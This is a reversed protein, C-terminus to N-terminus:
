RRHPMNLVNLPQTNRHWIEIMVVDAPRFYLPSPKQMGDFFINQDLLGHLRELSIGLLKSVEAETFYEKGSDLRIAM